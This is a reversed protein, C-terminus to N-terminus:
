KQTVGTLLIVRKKKHYRTPIQRKGNSQITHSSTRCHCTGFKRTTQSDKYTATRHCGKKQLTM